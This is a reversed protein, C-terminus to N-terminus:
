CPLGCRAGDDEPDRLPLVDQPSMPPQGNWRLEWTFSEATERYCVTTVEGFAASVALTGVGALVGILLHRMAAM